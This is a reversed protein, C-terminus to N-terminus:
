HVHGIRESVENQLSGVQQKNHQHRNGREKLREKKRLTCPASTKVSLLEIQCFSKFDCCVLEKAGGSCILRPGGIDACYEHLKESCQGMSAIFYVRRLRSFSSAFTIAYKHGDISHEAIPGLVDKHVIYM